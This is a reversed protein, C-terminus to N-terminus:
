RGIRFRSIPRIDGKSLGPSLGERYQSWFKVFVSQKPEQEAPIPKGDFNVDDFRVPSFQHWGGSFNVVRAAGGPARKAAALLKHM